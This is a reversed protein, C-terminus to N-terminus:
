EGPRMIRSETVLMGKCWRMCAEKVSWCRGRILDVPVLGKVVAAHAARWKWKLCTKVQGLNIYLDKVDSKLEQNGNELDFFVPEFPLVNRDLDPGRGVMAHPATAAGLRRRGPPANPVGLRLRGSSKSSNIRTWRRESRRKSPSWARISTGM